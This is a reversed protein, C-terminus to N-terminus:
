VASSLICIWTSTLWSTSSISLIALWACNLPSLRRVPRKARSLPSFVTVPEMHNWMPDLM